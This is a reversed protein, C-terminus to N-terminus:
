SALSLGTAKAQGKGCESKKALQHQFDIKLMTAKVGRLKSDQIPKRHGFETRLVSKIRSWSLVKGNYSAKDDLKSFTPPLSPTNPEQEHQQQQEEEAVPEDEVTLENLLMQPTHEEETEKLDAISARVTNFYNKVTQRWRWKITPDDEDTDLLQAGTTIGM